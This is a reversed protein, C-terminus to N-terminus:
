TLFTAGSRLLLVNRSGIQRLLKEEPMDKAPHGGASEYHRRAILLGQTPDIRRRMSLYLLRMAQIFLSQQSAISANLRFAAAKQTGALEVRQVFQSAEDAWAPEVILGPRLFMLWDARAHEVAGRLREGLPGGAKVVACGAIDAVELTADTSDADTVIVERVTGAAAAPVLAALTRVLLRESNHTPIIVSFM